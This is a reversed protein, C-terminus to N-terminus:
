EFNGFPIGSYFIMKDKLFDDSSTTLCIIHVNMIKM